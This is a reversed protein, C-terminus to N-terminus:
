KHAFLVILFGEIGSYESYVESEEQMISRSTGESVYDSDLPVKGSKM